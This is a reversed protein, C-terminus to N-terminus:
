NRETLALVSILQGNFNVQYTHLANNKAQAELEHLKQETAKVYTLTGKENVNEIYYDQALVEKNFSKVEEQVDKKKESSSSSNKEQRKMDSVTNNKVKKKETEEQSHSTPPLATNNQKQLPKFYSYAGIGGLIFFLVLFCLGIKKKNM